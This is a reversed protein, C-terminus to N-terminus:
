TGAFLQQARAALGWAVSTLEDGGAMKKAGFRDSLRERVAPVLASGGTAFVTDVDSAAVGARALVDTVVGDIAHLEPEVWGAFSARTAPANLGLENQVLTANPRASLAVKCREVAQHLPLGLDDTVLTVLHAIRAPDSSGHQIHDLLELTSEDKLFSLLHWRRLRVFLWHPVPTAAGFTDLYTTDRGLAPAVLADIIRADFSDGGLAIGGTALIASADGPALNPGVRLLSFDSTGGGFDAVLILEDHDLRAAYRLAAAIPELEFVVDTFGAQALATGMRAVARADDDANDAGWYRVPRGVVARAPLPRAVAQRLQHLYTSILTELTWMRGGIMTRTFSTSALHSKISQILRGSGEGKVYRAIAPAGALPLGDPEFHLVTRWTKVPEGDPGPLSALDISGDEQALALATNTTGFDIGVHVSM